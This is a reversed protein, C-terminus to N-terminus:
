DLTAAETVVGTFLPIGTDRDVACYAFPRDLVIDARLRSTRPIFAAAVRMSIATVAAAAFGTDTFEVVGTQRAQGVALDADSLGPFHGRSQDTAASLGFAEPHALLDHTMDARFAPLTLAVRDDPAEETTVRITGAATTTATVPDGAAGIAEVLGVLAQAESGTHGIGLHVDIGATGHCVVRTLGPHVSVAGFPPSGVLGTGDWGPAPEALRRFPKAWQTRVLLASALVMLNDDDITVPMRDIAGDTRESAWADLDERGDLRGIVDPLRAALRDNVAVKTWLGIAAKVGEVAALRDLVGIAADVGAAPDIGAADALERRAPGDATEALLALLVWAGAPSMASPTATAAAWRGALRAIATQHHTHDMVTRTTRGRGAAWGSARTAQRDVMVKM